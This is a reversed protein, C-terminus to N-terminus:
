PRRHSRYFDPCNCRRVCMPGHRQSRRPRQLEVTYTPPAESHRFSLCPTRSHCFYHKSCCTMHRRCSGVPLRCCGNPQCHTSAWRSRPRLGNNRLRRSCRHRYALRSDQRLALRSDPQLGQQLGPQLDPPKPKTMRHAPSPCRQYRPLSSPKRPSRSPDPRSCRFTRRPPPWSSRRSCPRGGICPPRAGRPRLGPFLTGIPGSGRRSWYMTRCLFSCRSLQSCWATPTVTSQLRM